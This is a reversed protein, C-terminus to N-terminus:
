EGGVLMKEITYKIGDNSKKIRTYNNKEDDFYYHREDETIVKARYRPGCNITKRKFVLYKIIQKKM